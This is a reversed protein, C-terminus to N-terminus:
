KKLYSKIDTITIIKLVLILGVYIFTTFIITIILYFINDMIDVLYLQDFFFNSLFQTIFIIFFLSIGLKFVNIFFQRDLDLNRNSILIIFLLIANVWASIATALAIGMERMSSILILSLIINLMVSIISIYLPTKTDERAFFCVILVKILVYAPLGLAFYGLVNSTYLTDEQTFAGREFLIHVIPLSLIYLGIASPISIILAFELSRNQLSRVKDNSDAKIVKSLSPLLVVGLAIGFIALPLQNLRDAYYLHSIAGIPLFSAIITGIIINLQIIGSGIVGPFFLRFFKRLKINLKPLKLKPKYFFLTSRYLFLFQGVGGVLVGISLAHGASSVYPTIIFLSLIFSINLIAPAFAGAAFRDHVNLISTFHAALSIFILYPFIIKGFFVALDFSESNPSFGPVLVQIIYPMGFFFIITLGVTVFLLLSMTNEVFDAAEHDDKSDIVIGSFVPILAASYAGEALVRRFFNPIRFAVFFADATLTSGLFRAILIDRVFGLIRSLMTYFSVTFFSRFLNQM